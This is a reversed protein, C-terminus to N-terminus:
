GTGRMLLSGGGSRGRKGGLVLWLGHARPDAKGVRTGALLLTGVQSSRKRQARLAVRGQGRLVLHGALRKARGDDVYRLRFTGNRRFSVRTVAVGTPPAPATSTWRGVLRTRRGAYTLPHDDVYTAFAEGSVTSAALGSTVLTSGSVRGILDTGVQVLGTAPDFSYPVCRGTEVRRAPGPEECTPRGRPPLGRFALERTVFSVMDTRGDAGQWGYARGRLDGNPPPTPSGTTWVAALQVSV